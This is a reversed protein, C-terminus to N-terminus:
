RAPDDSRAIIQGVRVPGSQLHELTRPREMVTRFNVGVVDSDSPGIRLQEIATQGEDVAFGRPLDAPKLSFALPDVLHRQATADTLSILAVGLAILLAALAGRVSRRGMRAVVSM